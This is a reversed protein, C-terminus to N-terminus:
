LLSLLSYAARVSLVGALGASASLGLLMGLLAAIRKVSFFDIDLFPYPYASCTRHICGRLRARLFVFAVYGGPFALWYVADGADLTWKGPSCILWYVFTTLPVLYHQVASDARAIREDPVHPTYITEEMVFPALFHHYVLHTLMICLMLAYEAHPILANLRDTGYILPAILAFYLFVLLNSQNTYYAWYDRRCVGAYFDGHMTLGALSFVVILASLVAGLLGQPTQPPNALM